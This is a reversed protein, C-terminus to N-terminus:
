KKVYIGPSHGFNMYDLPSLSHKQYGLSNVAVASSDLLTYLLIEELSGELQSL